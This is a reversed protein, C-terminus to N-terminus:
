NTTVTITWDCESIISLAHQGPDDHVYATDQGSTGLQNTGLDSEDIPDSNIIFNGQGGACHHYSWRIQWEAGTTFTPTSGEDHGSKTFVTTTVHQVAVTITTDVPVSMGSDAVTTITLKDYDSVDTGSEYTMQVNTLGLNALEANAASVTKGVLDTPVTANPVATTAPATTAGAALAETSTPSGDVSNGAAVPSNGSNGAIAAVVTVAVVAGLTIWPWRRRKKPAPAPMNPPPFQGSTWAPQAAFGTGFGPQQDIGAGVNNGPNNGPNSGLNNNQTM